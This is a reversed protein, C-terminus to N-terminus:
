HRTWWHHGAEPSRFDLMALVCCREASRASRPTADSRRRGLVFGPSSKCGGSRPMWQNVPCQDHRWLRDTGHSGPLPSQCGHHWRRVIVECPHCPALAVCGLRGPVPSAKTNGVPSGSCPTDQRTGGGGFYVELLKQAVLANPRQPPSEGPPVGRSRGGAMESELSRGSFSSCSTRNRGHWGTDGRLSKQGLHLSITPKGAVSTIDPIAQNCLTRSWETVMGPAAPVTVWPV